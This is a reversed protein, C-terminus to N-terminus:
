QEEMILNEDFIKMHDKDFLILKSEKKIYELYELNYM